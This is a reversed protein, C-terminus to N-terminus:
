AAGLGADPQMVVRVNPETDQAVDGISQDDTLLRSSVEDRLDWQIHPPLNLSAMAMEIVERPRASRKVRPLVVQQQYSPDSVEVSLEEEDAVAFGTTM